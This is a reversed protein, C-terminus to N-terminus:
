SAIVQWVACLTAVQAAYGFKLYIKSAARKEEEVSPGKPMQPDSVSRLSCYAPMASGLDQATLGLVSCDMEEVLAHGKDYTELGFSDETDDFLFSDCTIVDAHWVKPDRTAEPRLQAANAKMLTEALSFDVSSLDHTCTYAEHAYPEDKFAGTCDFVLNGAAVTDGEVVDPGIGGATGTDILLSCGTEEIIQAFLKRLPLATSDTALHLESKFLVVIKGGVMVVTNSGLKKAEKAPSRGTLMSEYESFNHAYSHWATLHRGPSLVDALACGEAYTYTVVVVDARPLPDNPGQTTNVLQPALNAPFPIPSSLHAGEPEALIRTLLAETLTDVM